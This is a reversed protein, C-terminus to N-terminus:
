ALCTSWQLAPLSSSVHTGLLRSVWWAPGLAVERNAGRQRQGRTQRELVCQVLLGVRPLGGNNRREKPAGETDGSPDAEHEGRRWGLAAREELCDVGWGRTDPEWCVMRRSFSRLM